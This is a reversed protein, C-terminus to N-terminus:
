KHRVRSPGFGHGFSGKGRWAGAKRGHIPPCDKLWKPREGPAALFLYAVVAAAILLAPRDEFAQSLTEKLKELELPAEAKSTGTSPKKKKM